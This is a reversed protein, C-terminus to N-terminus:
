SDEESDPATPYHSVLVPQYPTTDPYASEFYADIGGAQRVLDVIEAFAPPCSSIERILSLFQDLHSAIQGVKHALGDPDDPNNKVFPDGLSDRRRAIYSSLRAQLHTLPDCTPDDPTSSQSDNNQLDNTTKRMTKRRNYASLLRWPEDRQGGKGSRRKAKEHAQRKIQSTIEYSIAAV